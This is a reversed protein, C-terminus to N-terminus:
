RMVHLVRELEHTDVTIINGGARAEQVSMIDIHLRLDVCATVTSNFNLTCAYKLHPHPATIYVM